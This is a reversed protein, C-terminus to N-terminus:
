RSRRRGVPDASTSGSFSRRIRSTMTHTCSSDATGRFSSTPLRERARSGRWSWHKSRSDRSRLKDAIKSRWMCAGATPPGSTRVSAATLRRSSIEQKARAAITSSSGSSIRNAMPRLTASYAIYRGDPSYSRRRTTRGARRSRRRSGEVAPMVYLDSNATLSENDTYRSFAIEQGDPSFAVEEGGGETWIPSDINGPTLDRVGGGESSMAFIHNRKGDVWEDWRRFPIETITRAKVPNDDREKAAKENCAMDACNPFVSATLAITKGDPSLFYDGVGTPVNTIQKAEGGAIPLRFIQPKNDVRNSEFFLYRSDPSWRLSSNSGREAFTLQQPDGGAAPIM